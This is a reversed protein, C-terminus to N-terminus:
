PTVHFFDIDARGQGRQEPLSLAYLGIKAGVWKGPGAAFPEGVPTFGGDPTRWAFQCRANPLVTVRLELTHAEAGVPWTPGPYQRLEQADTMWGYGSTLTVGDATKELGLFAFREGYVMLGCRDGVNELAAQLRTTVTFTEAPFKQMLLNPVDYWSPAGHRQPMPQCFLRLGPRCLEYWGADPNAQWQWQLGLRDATFDDSTAPQARIKGASVAPMAAEVVPEGPGGDGSQAGIVPWDDQWQMPQLHVVRGYAHRDQFHVFWSEGNELEVWGGQHPGNVASRGQHLAVRAQWPGQLSAARLVTQWGTPVGGAPAFIYYWGNHKYLKPGELTPQSATGDVIIRGEDLLQRGDSSMRCLQLQHKRGSRSFAFAHVLWASGDDDWFPCPDIWGKAPQVCHPASWDSRPDDAQCMFIGEDPTSFFVWFKGAHYRISPAWVGKGPQFREYGPLDFRAFVHNILTWNVLDRSHLIPLAPMHNFSSSVLYIDEGVRVIDPDSYDAFLIPNRYRGDGRDPNWPSETLSPEM